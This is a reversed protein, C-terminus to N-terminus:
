TSHRPIPVARWISGADLRQLRRHRRRAHRWGLPWGFLGDLNSESRKPLPRGDLFVQRTPTDEYLILLLNKTQVIKIPDMGFLGARPGVPLCNSDPSDKAYTNARTAFLAQAWPLMEVKEAGFINFNYGLGSVMWLGSLDPKGDGARPAPAALNPKGDATRPLDPTPYDLWQATAPWAALLSFVFALILRTM